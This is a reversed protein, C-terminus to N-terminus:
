FGGMQFGLQFTPTAVTEDSAAVRMRRFPLGLRFQAQPSIKLDVYPTLVTQREVRDECEVVDDECRQHEISTGLWVAPIFLRKKYAESDRYNPDLGAVQFAGTATGGYYRALRQGEVASARKRTHHLMVSVGSRLGPTFAGGVGVDWGKMQYQNDVNGDGDLDVRSGTLVGFSQVNGTVRLEWSNRTVSEWYETYLTGLADRTYRRLYATYAEETEGLRQGRAPQLPNLNDAAQRHRPSYPAASNYGWGAGFTYVGGKQTVNLAADCYWACGRLDSRIKFPALNLKQINDKDTFGISTTLAQYTNISVDYYISSTPTAGTASHDTATLPRTAQAQARAPEGAIALFLVLTALFRKQITM